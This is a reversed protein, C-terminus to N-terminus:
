PLQRDFFTSNINSGVFEPGSPAPMDFFCRPIFVTTARPCVRPFGNANRRCRSVLSHMQNMPVKINTGKTYKTTFTQFWSFCSLCSVVPRYPFRLPCKNTGLV